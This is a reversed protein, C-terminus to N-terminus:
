KRKNQEDMLKMIDDVRATASSTDVNTATEMPSPTSSRETVLAGELQKKKEELRQKRKPDVAATEGFLQAFLPDKTKGLSLRLEKFQERATGLSGLLKSMDKGLKKFDPGKIFINKCASLANPLERLKGLTTATIAATKVKLGLFRLNDAFEEFEVITELLEDVYADQNMNAADKAAAFYEDALKTVIERSEDISVITSVILKEREMEKKIQSNSKM